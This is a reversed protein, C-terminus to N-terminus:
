DLQRPPKRYKIESGCGPCLYNTISRPHPQLHTLRKKHFCNSCFLEDAGKNKNVYAIAGTVFKHVAYDQSQKQWDSDDLAAKEFAFLKKEVQLNQKKLEHIQGELDNIYTSVQIAEAQNLSANVIKLIERMDM